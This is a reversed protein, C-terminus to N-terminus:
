ERGVLALLEDWNKARFLNDWEIREFKAAPLAKMAAAVADNPLGFRKTAFKMVVQKPVLENGLFLGLDRRDM